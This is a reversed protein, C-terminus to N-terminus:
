ASQKAWGLRSSGRRRRGVLLLVFLGVAGVPGDNDSGAVCACGRDILGDEGAQSGGPGGDDDRDDDDDDDGGGGTGPAETQCTSSCGDGDATNADDCQESEALVGDGCIADPANVGVVCLSDVAWGGMHLGADTVLRFGLEVEGDLAEDTIDVDHFRWERDTHHTTADDENPGAYNAWVESGDVELAAQDYFGDEVTLWRRYQLRISAYGSPDFSIPGSTAEDDSFPAYYGDGGLSHGLVVGDGDWDAGPDIRGEGSPSGIEFGGETNWEVADDGFNTCLLEDVPGVFVEYWPDARNDPLTREAGVSYTVHVRYQMVQGIANAPMPASFGGVDGTMEVTTSEEDGRRRYELTAEAGVPCGPFDPLALQLDVRFGEPRESLLVAEAGAGPAFLGHSGFAANIECGNPTGNALNGDDDDVLLAEPHMSPMDVARRTAEYYIRDAQRIGEAEGYKAILLTRLDWLAGGIIRGAAHVEGDDEPWRYEFGDPDLERLPMDSYFFGRALGSDNTITASLYDSIGESLAGDFSGVGPIISQHHVAHGFEHYVVDAIRATNECAGSSLFFNITTGDSFANCEDDLNVTIELQEDLFSFTPDIGRIHSKVIGGHIYAAVQADIVEDDVANWVTAGGDAVFLEASAPEGAANFVQRDPGVLQALVAATPNPFAVTGLADTVQPTGDVLMETADAYYDARAGFSPSRQPANYLVNGSAFSLTQERAVPDGTESDIYVRWASAPQSVRVDVALVEVYRPEASDDLIPLVFPGAAAGVTIAEGEVSVAILDEASREAQKPDIRHTPIPADVFPLAESGIGVLRDHKFRFSVQGGLVERGHDYQVFGISRMDGGAQASVHNSVLVFDDARSGPALVAIHDALWAKALDSAVWPDAVTDAAPTGATLLRRPVGTAEDWGIWTPGLATRLPALARAAMTAARRSRTPSAGMRLAGHRPAARGDVLVLKGHDVGALHAAPGAAEGSTPILLLSAFTLAAASRKM